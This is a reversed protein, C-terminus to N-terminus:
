FGGKIYSWGEEQREVIHILGGPVFGSEGVIQSKELKQQRLTNECALFTIGQAKSETLQPQINTKEKLLMSIGKNHAVVEIQAMPWEKRVNTIQKTLARYAATDPTTMHFVIRHAKAKEAASSFALGAAVVSMTLLGLGFSFAPKM